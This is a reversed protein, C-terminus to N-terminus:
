MDKVQSSDNAFVSKSRRFVVCILLCIYVKCRSRCSSDRLVCSHFSSELRNCAKSGSQRVKCCMLLAICLQIIMAIGVGYINIIACLNPHNREAM